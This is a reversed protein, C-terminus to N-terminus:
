RMGLFVAGGAVFLILVVLAMAWRARPSLVTSRIAFLLYLVLAVTVLGGGDSGVVRGAHHPALLWLATGALLGVALLVTVWLRKKRSLEIM